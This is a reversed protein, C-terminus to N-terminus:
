ASTRAPDEILARSTPSGIEEDPTFLFMMPLRASGAAAVQKFAELALYAGGKMDYIGPGFLKDGETRLPLDHALTGVPHVTDLHVDVARGQATAPGARLVLIDGLGDRGPVREIAIPLGAIVTSWRTWPTTSPPSM